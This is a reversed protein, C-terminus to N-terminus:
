NEAYRAVRVGVHCRATEDIYALPRDLPVDRSSRLLKYHCIRCFVGQSLASLRCTFLQPALGCTLMFVGATTALVVGYYSSVGVHRTDLASM